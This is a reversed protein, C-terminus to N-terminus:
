FKGAGGAVGPCSGSYGPVGELCTRFPETVAGLFEGSLGVPLGLGVGLSSGAPKGLSGAFSKLLERAAGNGKNQLVKEM